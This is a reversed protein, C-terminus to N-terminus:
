YRRRFRADQAARIKEPHQANHCAHCLSILNSDDLALEPYEDLHKIHHVEVAEIHRGYRRCMQCEYSDRRLIYRRKRKWKESLYFEKTNMNLCIFGRDKQSISLLDDYSDRAKIIRPKPVSLCSLSVM